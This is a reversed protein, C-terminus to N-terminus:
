LNVVRGIVHVSITGGLSGGVEVFLDSGVELALPTSFHHSMSLPAGSNPGLVSMDWIPGQSDRLQIPYMPGNHGYVQVDTILVRVGEVETDMRGNGDIDVLIRELHPRQGAPIYQNHYSWIGGPETTVKFSSGIPYAIQFPTYVLRGVAMGAFSALALAAVITIVKM